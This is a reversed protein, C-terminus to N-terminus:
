KASPIFSIDGNIFGYGWYAVLLFVSILALEDERNDVFLIPVIIYLVSLVAAIPDKKDMLCRRYSLACLM